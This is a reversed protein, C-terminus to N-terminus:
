STPLRSTPAVSKGGVPVKKPRSGRGGAKGQRWERAGALKGAMAGAGRVLSKSGSRRTRRQPSLAALVEEVKQRIAPCWHRRLARLHRNEEPGREGGILRALDLLRYQHAIHTTPKAAEAVLFEVVPPGVRLLLTVAPVLKEPDDSGLWEILMDLLGDGPHAENMAIM